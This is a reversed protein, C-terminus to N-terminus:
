AEGVDAWSNLFEIKKFKAALRDILDKDQSFVEWYSSDIMQVVIDCTDYMEHNDKYRHLVDKNKSGIIIVDIIQDFKKSLTNLDEWSIYLGNELASIEKEFDVISKGDGLDGTAWLFLISWLLLDGDRIEELIDYLTVYIYGDDEDLIRIANTKM